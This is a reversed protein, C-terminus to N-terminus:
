SLRLWGGSVSCTSAHTCQIGACRRCQSSSYYCVILLHAHSAFAKPLLPALGRGQCGGEQRRVRGQLRPRILRCALLMVSQIMYVLTCGDAPTERDRLSM